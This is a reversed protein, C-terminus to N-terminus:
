ESYMWISALRAFIWINQKLELLLPLNFAITEQVRVGDFKCHSSGFLM